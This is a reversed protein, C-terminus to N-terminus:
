MALQARKKRRHVDPKENGPPIELVPSNFIIKPWSKKPWASNIGRYKETNIVDAMFKRRRRPILVRARGYIEAVGCFWNAPDPM